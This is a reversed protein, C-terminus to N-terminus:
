SRKDVTRSFLDSWNINPTVCFPIFGEV